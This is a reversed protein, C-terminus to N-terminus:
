SQKVKTPWIYTRHIYGIMSPEDLGPDIHPRVLREHLEPLESWHVNPHLHHAVHYGSCFMWYNLSPSTFNRAFNFTTEDDNTDAHQLINMTVIAWQAFVRPTWWYVLAKRWNIWLMVGFALVVCALQVATQVAFASVKGRARASAWREWVYAVDHRLVKGAVTPHFLILNLIPWQYKMQHTNMLDKETQMNNHHLIQHGPVFSNVPHGYSLSLVVRWANETWFGRFVRVHMANHVITASAFGFYMLAPLLAWADLRWAAATLAFFLPPWAVTRVDARHRLGLPADTDM